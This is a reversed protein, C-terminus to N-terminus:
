RLKPVREMKYTFVFYKQMTEILLCLIKWFDLFWAFQPFLMYKKYNRLLIQEGLM